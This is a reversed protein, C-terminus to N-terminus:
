RQLQEAAGAAELERKFHAREEDTLPVAKLEDRLAEARGQEGLVLALELRAALARARDVPAADPNKALGLDLIKAAGADDNKFDRFRAAMRVAKGLSTDTHESIEEDYDDPADQKIYVVSSGDVDIVTFRSQGKKMRTIRPLGSLPVKGYAKRLSDVFTQHLDEVEPLMVLCTSFSEERKLKPVGVFHLHVDGRRIAGYVYPKLQEHTVEFGLIRYFNLTEPLSVSPLVPITMAQGM